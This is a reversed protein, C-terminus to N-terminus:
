RMPETVDNLLVGCLADFNHVEGFHDSVGPNFNSPIGDIHWSRRLGEFLDFDADCTGRHCFDGPFRLALQGGGQLVVFALLLWMCRAVHLM